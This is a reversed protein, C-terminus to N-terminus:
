IYEGKFTDDIIEEEIEEESGIKVFYPCNPNGLEQNLSCLLYDREKSLDVHSCFYCPSYVNYISM